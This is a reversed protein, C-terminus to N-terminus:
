TAKSDGYNVNNGDDAKVVAAMSTLLLATILLLLGAKKASWSAKVKM